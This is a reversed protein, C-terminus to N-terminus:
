SVNLRFVRNPDVKANEGEDVIRISPRDSTKVEGIFSFAELALLASKRAFLVLRVVPLRLPPSDRRDM